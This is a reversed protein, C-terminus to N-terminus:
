IIIDGELDYQDSATVKAKVIDGVRVSRTEQPQNLYIVGDIEPADGKTRGVIGQESVEDVIVDQISDIKAALKEASIKQQLLMFRDLREQKVEEPIQDPLENADASLVPSYTFCGVRDLKAEQIFDLLEVFEEETEGPFGVIFTSRITIDPCINRWNTINELNREHDGPRKMLKLVRKNVHQLPVDMYPLVFGEAMQEILKTVHPYPYAYHVRQWVGLKGLEETLAYLDGKDHGRFSPYKTDMGYASTDQAVILLEKVGRDVYAKAQKLISEPDYSNLDGRIKPIICFSCRHSCGESIKLFAYHSPTLLIGGEPVFGPRCGSGLPFSNKVVALVEPASHPGTIAKVQPYANLIYSRRPGLCGTVIVNKCHELAEGITEMSESIASDIFGCTNIIVLDANEYSPTVKYGEKILLSLINESDVLNKPCGLSIFGINYATM